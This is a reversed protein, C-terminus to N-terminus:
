LEKALDGLIERAKHADEIRAFYVIGPYKVTNHALVTLTNPFRERYGLFYGTNSATKKWSKNYYDAILELKTLAQFYKNRACIIPYEGLTITSYNKLENLIDEYIKTDLEQKNFTKLALTKLTTNDSNYWEKATDLDIEITRKEM